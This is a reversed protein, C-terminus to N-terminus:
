SAKKDETGDESGKAKKRRKLTRLTRGMAVSISRECEPCMDEFEVIVDGRIMVTFDPVSKKDDAESIVAGCRDCMRAKM